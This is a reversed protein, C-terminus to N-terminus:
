LDLKYIGEQKGIQSYFYIADGKANLFPLTIKDLKILERTNRKEREDLEIINISGATLYIIYNDSPHWFVAQIPSSIRTLLNKEKSSYNYLYIEFDNAYLMKEDNVWSSYKINEIKAIPSFYPSNDILYLNNNKKDLVSILNNKFEQLRYDSEPLLNVTKILKGNKDYINLSDASSYESILAINNDTVLFDIIKKASVLTSSAFNVLSLSNIHNENKGASLYFIKKNEVESWRFAGEKNDLDAIFKRKDLDYIKKDILINKSDSSWLLHDTSATIGKEGLDIKEETELNIIGARGENKFAMLKKDPSLAASDFRGSIVIQPLANKFLAIDEAYTSQGAEVKLKKEWDWYGDLHLKVSYEGPFIDKIKAPTIFYNKESDSPILFSFYKNFFKKQVVGNLYIKAGAPRSALVLIGTKQIRVAEKLNKSFKLRYGKAKLIINPTIVLFAIIFSLYLFRRFKLSMTKSIEFSL